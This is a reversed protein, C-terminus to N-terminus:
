LPERDDDGGYDSMTIPNSLHSTSNAFFSSARAVPPRHHHRSALNSQEIIFFAPQLHCLGRSPLLSFNSHPMRGM